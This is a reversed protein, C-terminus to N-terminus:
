LKCRWIFVHGLKVKRHGAGIVPLQLYEFNVKAGLAPGVPPAPNAKGAQLALKILGTVAAFCLSLQAALMSEECPAQMALNTQHPKDASVKQRWALSAVSRDAQRECLDAYWLLEPFIPM